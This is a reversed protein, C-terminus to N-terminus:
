GRRTPRRSCSWRSTLWKPTESGSGDRRCAPRVSARRRLVARPLPRPRALGPGWQHLSATVSGETATNM